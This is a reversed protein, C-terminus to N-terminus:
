LVISEGDVPKFVPSKDTFYERVCRLFYVWELRTFYKDVLTKGPLGENNKKLTEDLARSVTGTSTKRVGCYVCPCSVTYRVMYDPTHMGNADSDYCLKRDFEGDAYLDYRHDGLVCRLIRPNVQVSDKMM